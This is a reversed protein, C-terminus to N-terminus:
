ERYITVKRVADGKTAGKISNGNIGENERRKRRSKEDKREKGINFSNATSPIARTVSVLLCVSLSSLSLSVQTLLSVRVRESKGARKYQM